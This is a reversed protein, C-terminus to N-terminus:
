RQYQATSRPTETIEQPDQANEHKQARRLLEDMNSSM